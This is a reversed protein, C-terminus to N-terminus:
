VGVPLRSHIVVVENSALHMFYSTLITTKLYRYLKYKMFHTKSLLFNHKGENLLDFFDNVYLRNQRCNSMNGVLAVCNFELM